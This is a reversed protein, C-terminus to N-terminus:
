NHLESETGQVEEDTVPEEPEPILTLVIIKGENYINEILIGDEKVHFITRKSYWMTDSFVEYESFLIGNKTIEKTDTNVSWYNEESDYYNLIVPVDAVLKPAPEPTSETAAQATTEAGCSALFLPTILIPLLFKKLKM